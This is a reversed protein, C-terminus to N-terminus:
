IDTKEDTALASVWREMIRHGSCWNVNMRKMWKKLSINKTTGLAGMGQWTLM